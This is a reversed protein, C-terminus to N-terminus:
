ARGGPLNYGLNNAIAAGALTLATGATFASAQNNGGSGTLSSQDLLSSNKPTTPALKPTTQAASAPPALPAATAASNGAISRSLASGRFVRTGQLANLVTKRQENEQLNLQANTISQEAALQQQQKTPGSSGGGGFSM